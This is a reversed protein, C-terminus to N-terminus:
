QTLGLDRDDLAIRRFLARREDKANSRSGSSLNRRVPVLDIFVDRDEGTHPADTHPVLEVLVRATIHRGAGVDDQGFPHMVEGDRLAIDDLYVADPWESDM